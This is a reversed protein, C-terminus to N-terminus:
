RPSSRAASYVLHVNVSPAQLRSRRTGTVALPAVKIKRVRFLIKWSVRRSILHKLVHQGFFPIMKLTIVM